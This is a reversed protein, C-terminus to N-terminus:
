SPQSEDKLAFPSIAMLAPETEKVTFVPCPSKRILREAVSGLLVRRIGTLGHTSVVLLDCNTTNLQKIIEKSPHGYLVTFDVDLPLGSVENYFNMLEKQVKSEIDPDIDYVSFVGTNYFTPHLREEIVHVVNLRADFIAALDKAYHLAARSYESFDVPVTILNLHKHLPEFEETAHVTLVSAPAARVVEEAVSGLVNRSLGTRGHTGMIVLDIDYDKCYQVIAQAASIDRLVVYRIANLDSVYLGQKETDELIEKKLFDHLIQGKSKKGAEPLTGHIVEVHLIHLEAGTKAAIEIAYNLAQKSCPSFDYTILIQEPTRM